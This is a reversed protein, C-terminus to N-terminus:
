CLNNFSVRLSKKVEVTFSETLKSNTTELAINIIHRYSHVCLIKFFLKRNLINVFESENLRPLFLCTNVYIFRIYKGIRFM